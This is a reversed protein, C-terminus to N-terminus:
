TGIRFNIDSKKRRCAEIINKTNNSCKSINKHFAELLVFIIFIKVEEILVEDPKKFGGLIRLKEDLQEYRTPVGGLVQFVPILLQKKKLFQILERLESIEEILDITMPEIFLIAERTTKLLEPPLSNPSGDVIISVGFDDTLGRVASTVSAYEEKELREPVRLVVIPSRRFFLRYFFLIRLM